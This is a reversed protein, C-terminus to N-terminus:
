FNFCTCYKMFTEFNHKVLFLKILYAKAPEVGGARAIVLPNDYLGSVTQCGSTTKAAEEFDLVVVYRMPLGAVGNKFENFDYVPVQAGDPMKGALANRFEDPTLIGGRTETLRQKYAQEIRQPSSFVGGGHVVLVVPAKKPTLGVLEESNATFWILGSQIM